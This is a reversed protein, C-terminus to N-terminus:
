FQASRKRPATLRKRRPTGLPRIELSSSAQIKPGEFKHVENKPEEIQAAQEQPKEPQIAPETSVSEPLALIFNPQNGFLRRYHLAIIRPTPSTAPRPRNASASKCMRTSCASTAKEHITPEPPPSSVATMLM